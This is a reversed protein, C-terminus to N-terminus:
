EYDPANAFNRFAAKLKTMDIQGDTQRGIQGDDTLMSLSPERQCIEMFNKYSSKDFIQRSKELKIVTQCSYRTSLM